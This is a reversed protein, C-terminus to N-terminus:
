LFQNNLKKIRNNRKFLTSTSINSTYITNNTIIYTKIEKENIHDPNYINGKKRMVDIFMKTNHSYLSTEKDIIAIIEKVPISFNKGIHLFM